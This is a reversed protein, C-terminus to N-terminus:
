MGGSSTVTQIVVLSGPVVVITVVSVSVCSILYTRSLVASRSVNSVNLLMLWVVSVPVVVSVSVLVSVSVFVSVSVVTWLVVAVSVEIVVDWSVIVVEISLGVVRVM